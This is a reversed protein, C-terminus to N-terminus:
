WGCRLYATRQRNGSLVQHYVMFLTLSVMFFYRLRAEGAVYELWDCQSALEALFDFLQSTGQVEPPDHLVALASVGDDLVHQQMRALTGTFM